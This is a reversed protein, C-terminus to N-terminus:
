PEKLVTSDQWMSGPVKGAGTCPWESFFYSVIIQPGVQSLEHMYWVLNTCQGHSLKIYSVPQPKIVHTWVRCGSRGIEVPITSRHNYVVDILRYPLTWQNVNNCM